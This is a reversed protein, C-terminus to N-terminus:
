DKCSPFSARNAVAQSAAYRRFEAAGTMSNALAIIAAASACVEAVARQGSSLSVENARRTIYTDFAREGNGNGNRRFYDVMQHQYGVIADRTRLTFEGYAADRCIDSAVMLQTQFEIAQVAEVDANSYCGRPGAAQSGSAILSAVAALVVARRM